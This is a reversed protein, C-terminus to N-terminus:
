ELPKATASLTVAQLVKRWMRNEVEAPPAWEDIALSLAAIHHQDVAPSHSPPAALRRSASRAKRVGPCQKM